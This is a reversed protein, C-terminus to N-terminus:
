IWANKHKREGRRLAAKRDRHTQSAARQAFASPAIGAEVLAKRRREGNTLAVKIKTNVPSRM